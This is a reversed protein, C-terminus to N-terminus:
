YVSMRSLTRTQTRVMLEILVFPRNRLYLAPSNILCSLNISPAPISLFLVSGHSATSYVTCVSMFHSNDVWASPQNEKTKTKVSLWVLCSRSYGWLGPILVLVWRFALDCLKNRGHWSASCAFVHKEHVKCKYINANAHSRESCYDSFGSVSIYTTM